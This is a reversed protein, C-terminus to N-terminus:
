GIIRTAQQSTCWPFLKVLCGPKTADELCAIGKQVVAIMPDNEELTDYGYVVM